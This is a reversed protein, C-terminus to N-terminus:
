AEISNKLGYKKYIVEQAVKDDGILKSGNASKEEEENASSFRSYSDISLNVSNGSIM